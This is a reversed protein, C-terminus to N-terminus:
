DNRISLTDFTVAVAHVIDKNTGADNGAVLNVRWKQFLEVVIPSASHDHTIWQLNTTGDDFQGVDTAVPASLVPTVYASPDEATHSGASQFSQRWVLSGMRHGIARAAGPKVLVRVFKIRGERPLLPTIDWAMKAFNVYSMSGVPTTSRMWDGYAGIQVGSLHDLFKTSQLYAPLKIAGDGSFRGNLTDLENRALRSRNSLGQFGTLVSAAALSDGDAPAVIPDTFLAVDVINQPM